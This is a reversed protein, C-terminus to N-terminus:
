RAGGALAARAADRISSLDYPSWSNTVVIREIAELAGKARALEAKLAACEAVSAALATEAAHKLEKLRTIEYRYSLDEAYTNEM